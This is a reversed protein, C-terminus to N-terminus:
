FGYQQGGHILRAVIGVHARYFSDRRAGIDAAAARANATEADPHLVYEIEEGGTGRPFLDQRVIGIELGVIDGCDQLEGGLLVIVRHQPACSQAEEDVSLERWRECSSNFRDAVRRLVHGITSKCLGRIVLNARVSSLCSRRDDRLVFVERDVPNQVLAGCDNPNADSVSATRFQQTTEFSFQRGDDRCEFSPFREDFEPLRASGLRVERDGEFV